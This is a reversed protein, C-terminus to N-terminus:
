SRGGFTRLPDRQPSAGRSSGRPILRLRDAVDHLSRTVATEFREPVKATSLMSAWSKETIVLDCYPVAIALATVDNLDNGQWAKQPNAQRQHRVKMEVWRSPIAELIRRWNDGVQEPQLGLGYSAEAIPTRIDTYATALMIDELRHRGHQKVATAVEEQGQVFRDDTLNKFAHMTLRMEDPMGEPSVSALIMAEFDPGARRQLEM